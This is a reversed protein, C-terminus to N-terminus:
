IVLDLGGFRLCLDHFDVQLHHFLHKFEFGIAQHKPSSNLTFKRSLIQLDVFQSDWVLWSIPIVQDDSM